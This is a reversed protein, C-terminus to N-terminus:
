DPLIWYINSKSVSKRFLTQIGSDFLRTIQPQLFNIRPLVAENETLIENLRWINLVLWNQLQPPQYMHEDLLHMNRM